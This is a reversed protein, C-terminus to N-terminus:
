ADKYLSKFTVYTAGALDLSRTSSTANFLFIEIYDGFALDVIASIQIASPLGSYGERRPARHIETGNKYIYLIFNNVASTNDMLVQANVEVYEAGFINAVDEDNMTYRANANSWRATGIVSTNFLIKATAGNAISQASTKTIKAVVSPPRLNAEQFSEVIADHQSENLTKNDNVVTTLATIEGARAANANNLSVIFDQAQVLVAQVTLANLIGGVTPTFAVLSADGTAASNTGVLMLRGAALDTAFVGSTHNSVVFYIGDGQTVIDRQVYARATVWTGRPNFGTGGLLLLTALGLSDPTVVGNRLAGDDRQLLALNLQIQQSFLAIAALQSDLLAPPFPAQPNETAYETLDVTKSYPTAQTM